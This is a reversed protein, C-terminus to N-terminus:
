EKKRSKQSKKEAKIGENYGGWWLAYGLGFMFVVALTGVMGAAFGDAWDHVIITNTYSPLDYAFLM